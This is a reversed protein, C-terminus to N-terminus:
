QVKILKHMVAPRDEFTMRLFYVGQAASEGSAYKGNWIVGHYGPSRYDDVLGVVKKGQIDFVDLSVKGETPLAYHITTSGKLPNPKVAKIGFEATAGAISPVAEVSQDADPEDEEGCYNFYENLCTATENLDSFDAGYPDLAGPVGAIAQDAIALFADVTIAGFKGRCDEPIMMSGLCGATPSLAINFIGACSYERNMRLALIQGALV